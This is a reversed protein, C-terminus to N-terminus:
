ATVRPPRWIAGEVGVLGPRDPSYPPFAARLAALAARRGVESQKGEHELATVLRELELTQWQAVGLGRRVDARIQQRTREDPLPVVSVLDANMVALAFVFPLAGVVTATIFSEKMEPPWTPHTIGRSRIVQGDSNLDLMFVTQPPLIIPPEEAFYAFQELTIVVMTEPGPPEARLGMQTLADTFEAPTHGRVIAGRQRESGFMEQWFATPEGTQEDTPAAFELWLTQFPPVINPFDRTYVRREPPGAAGEPAYFLHAAPTIEVHPIARLEAKSPELRPDALLREILRVV